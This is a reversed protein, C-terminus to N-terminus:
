SGNVVLPLRNLYQLRDDPQMVYTPFQVAGLRNAATIDYLLGGSFTVDNLTEVVTSGDATTIEFDYVGAPVEIEIANGFALNDILPTTTGAIRVDVPPTDPSLHYAKVRAADAAPARLSDTFITAGISAALGSVAVTYAEGAEFTPSADLVANAVPQGAPVVQVRHLGAPLTNYATTGFFNINSYIKVTDLYIDVPGSDPSAHTFRLRTGSDTVRVEARLAAPQGVAFVDYIRGPQLEVDFLRLLVTAGDASTIELDYIGAPVSLDAGNPFALDNVLPTTDGAVRVDVPPAGPSLHYASVRAQAGIPAGLNEEFIQATITAPPNIAAITYAKGLEFTPNATIIASGVPQGTPTVQILHAGSTVELYDSASFFPVNTVVKTGDIYVDVNPAGPSAHVLRVKSTTAVIRSELRLSTLFGVAYVDYIRGAKLETDPISAAVVDSGFLTTTVELDYSGAALEVYGSANSFTLNDVLPTPNGAQRIDVPPGNPVLHFLRIKASGAAPASLNDNYVQGTLAGFTGIAAITYAQSAGLVPMLTVLPSSSPEGARRIEITHMGPALDLYDTATFFPVDELVLTGDISIDVNPADPSAHVIRVRADGPAAYSAPVAVFGLVIAMLAFAVLRSSRM